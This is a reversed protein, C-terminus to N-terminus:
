LYPGFMRVQRVVDFKIPPAIEIAKKVEEFLSDCVTNNGLEEPLHAIEMAAEPDSEASIAKYKTASCFRVAFPEVQAASLEIANPTEESQPEDELYHAVPSFIWGRKDVILIGSRFGPCHLSEIGAARLMDVAELSGFGMRLTRENFDLSVALYPAHLCKTFDM